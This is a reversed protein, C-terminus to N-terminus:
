RRTRGGVEALEDGVFGLFPGLHDPGGVNPWLSGNLGAPTGYVREVARGRPVGLGSNIKFRLPIVLLGGLNGGLCFTPPSCGTLWQALFGKPM